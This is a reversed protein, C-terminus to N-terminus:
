EEAFAKKVVYIGDQFRRVDKGVKRTALELNAATQSVSEKSNGKVIIEKGKIEVHVGKVIKARRPKKEGGFNSVEIAEGKQALTIPFHSYVIALESRYGSKLGLAINKVHSEFANIESLNRKTASKANLTVRNGSASVIIGAPIKRSSEGKAGKFAIEGGRVEAGIGEPLIIEREIDQKM